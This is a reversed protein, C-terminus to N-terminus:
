LIKVVQHTECAFFSKLLKIPKVHLFIVFLIGFFYKNTVKKLLYHLKKRIEMRYVIARFTKNEYKQM